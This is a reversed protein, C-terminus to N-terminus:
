ACDRGAFGACCVGSARCVRRDGCHRPVVRGGLATKAVARVFPEGRWDLLQKPKGFRQAEGAALIIGAIPERVAYIKEEKLSAIIVSDYTPLLNSAISDAQSQLEPTDAQNLLAVRRATPPINKLGGEPHTLVRVLAEPTVTEGLELGGLDGFIEHRHVFEDDLPKGLGTLGVVQIVQEVFEPIAPEHAAPAKLPRQRSGDAEILLPLFSSECVERLWSLADNRLGKTRDKEFEGTVLTVGRPLIKQIDEKTRVIHHEDALPIQWVGLHTTASVVVPPILDRALQFLATSKGGAGAFAITSSAEIRLARALNM